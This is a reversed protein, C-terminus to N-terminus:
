LGGYLQRAVKVQGEARAKGHAVGYFIPTTKSGGLPKPWRNQQMLKSYIGM